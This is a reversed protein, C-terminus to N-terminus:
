IAIGNNQTFLRKIKIKIHSVKTSGFRKYLYKIHQKRKEKKKKFPWVMIKRLYDENKNQYKM